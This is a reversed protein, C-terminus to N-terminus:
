GLSVYVSFHTPSVDVSFHVHLHYFLYVLSIQPAFSGKLMCHIKVCLATCHENVRAKLM